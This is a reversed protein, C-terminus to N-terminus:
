LMLDTLEKLVDRLVELPKLDASFRAIKNSPYHKLVEATEKLYVNMRTEFVKYDMDDQRKEVLARKQLRKFLSQHDKIDLAIIKKVNVYPELLKAQEITRPIGDLLLLQEKPYYRNTAILGSVFYHWIEITVADPVLNGKLAYQHFIKGAPSDVPLGRFIDGSSLHFHSGASSLFKGLTGKGVGPPGFLLIAEFKGEASPIIHTHRTM